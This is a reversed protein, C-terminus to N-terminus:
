NEGPLVISQIEESFDWLSNFKVEISSKYNEIRIKLLRQNRGTSTPLLSQIHILKKVDTVIADHTAKHNTNNEINLNPVPIDKLVGTGRSFWGDGFTSGRKRLFFEIAKQNLLGLFFELSYGKRPNYIAVEGATGGSAYCVGTFDIAYKDGRQNVTYVIKPITFVADLAQHRGYAYFVGDRPSPSVNRSILRERHSELYAFTYPFDRKMVEPDITVPSGNSSYQYPFIMLSDAQIPQYSIVRSSDNIYPRTISKEIKWHVGKKEFRIYDGEDIYNTILFIDNASTQIGNKIKVLRSIPISNLKLKRLVLAENENGPLVWPNERFTNIISREQSYGTEQPTQLFEQFSNIYRFKFTDSGDKRLILMCVYASNKDFIHLNGFNVIQSVYSNEALLKRLSSGSENTIWKNPIVMGFWAGSRLKTIALEVFVFYKDFQKNPTSYRQKYYAIEEPNEKKMDETKLYPPNGIIVDFYEPLNTHEWNFPVTKDFVPGSTYPFDSEVVTNGLLINNDLNPLIKQGRPLTQSTEEELLRVMLSFRAIEVANFDIDIGFLCNQLIEKKVEFALKYNNNNVRYILTTNNENHLIEIALEILEDFAKLLFRSSGVAVDLVRISKITDLNIETNAHLDNFKLEFTRRVLEDVIPQPTTVKERHEYTPKDELVIENSSNIALRQWLFLEYVHGLFDADLVSFSYPSNPSYVEDVIQLFIEVNIELIDQFRDSVVDFLGTNYRDDLRKFFARLDFLNRRRAVTRLDDLGEIGRDECMRIFIIRNIIKQTLDSLEEINLRPYRSYLDQAIRIRWNNIRSLFSINVPINGSPSVGFIREYNGRVVNDRNLIEYIEDFRSLYEEYDVSMLLAVDADDTSNPEISTNYIRLTRFNTLISISLGASFGYSRVQFASERHARIDVSPRKAEVFFKKITAIRFTYDPKKAPGEVIQSEERLVDRMRSPQGATNAMSWGLLNFFPDIFEVRVETEQYASSNLTYSTEDSKFRQVLNILEYNQNAM